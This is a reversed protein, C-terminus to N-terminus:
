ALVTRDLWAEALQTSQTITGAHGNEGAVSPDRHLVHLDVQAGARTALRCFEIAADTGVRSDNDGITVHLRKGTKALRTAHLPLSLGHALSGETM